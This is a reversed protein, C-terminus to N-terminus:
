IFMIFTSSDNVALLSSQKTVGANNTAVCTYNGAHRARVSELSLVSLRPSHRMIVLGDNTYLRGGNKTWYIDMPLDGKNVTCSASVMDLENISEEGFDFPIIQPLVKLAQPAHHLSRKM